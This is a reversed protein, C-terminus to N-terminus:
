YLLCLSSVRRPPVGVGQTHSSGAFCRAGGRAIYAQLARLIGRRGRTMSAMGFQGMLVGHRQVCGHIIVVHALLAHPMIRSM